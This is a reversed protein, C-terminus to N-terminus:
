DHYVCYGSAATTMMNCPEGNTRTAKCKVEKNDTRQKVEKHVTCKEGAKDVTNSCRTGDSKVASCNFITKEGKKEQEKEIDIQSQLEQEKEDIKLQKKEEKKKVKIEAKVKRATTELGIDWPNWGLLLALKDFAETESKSAMIINQAKQVARDLPINTAASILNAMANFAPNEITFGMEEIADQNMQETRIAGYLKRLKSGITPSLNAFEIITRTHDANYGKKKEKRYRLFGNKITAAVAGTLGMGNLISDIMGNAVREKKNDWEDESGLASWLATQLSIFIINQVAGYYIIKSVNEKTSGRNSKLDLVAKIMLRNYQMPTNKFALILRGLGSAQQQSILDPRSSQQGKQTKEQFDLWALETAKETTYNVNTEPDIKKEYAKIKNRYYSAGGLSIAFSDAFQTPLFGKELIAAIIAKPKNTSNKLRAALESTNVDISLGKRRQILMDSNMIFMFDEVFQPVNAVAKLVNGINNDGWDIYNASSITQLTASRMNFFMIAGVSNNVWNNWQAEIRGPRSRHRGYEMRYLMDELAEVHDNGFAARLKAKNDESFIETVNAKWEKLYEARGVVGTM